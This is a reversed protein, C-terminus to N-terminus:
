PATTYRADKSGRSFKFKGRAIKSFNPRTFATAAGFTGLGVVRVYSSPEMPEQRIVKKEFDNSELWLQSFIFDYLYTYDQACKSKPTM